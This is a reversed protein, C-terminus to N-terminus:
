DLYERVEDLTEAKKLFHTLKQLEDVDLEKAKPLLRRGAAGFKVELLVKIGELRGQRLGKKIGVREFSTVFPVANEEEFEHLETQFVEELDDPLTM